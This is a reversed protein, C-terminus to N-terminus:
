EHYSEMPMIQTFEDSYSTIMIEIVLWEGDETGSSHTKELLSSKRNM